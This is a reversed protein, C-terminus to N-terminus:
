PGLLKKQGLVRHCLYKLGLGMFGVFKEVSGLSMLGMRALFGGNTNIEKGSCTNKSPMLSSDDLGLNGGIVVRSRRAQNRRANIKLRGM